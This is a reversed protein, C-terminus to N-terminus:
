QLNRGGDVLNELHRSGEVKKKKGLCCNEFSFIQHESIFTQDFTLKEWSTWPYESVDTQNTCTM